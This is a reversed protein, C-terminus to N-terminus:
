IIEIVVQRRGIAYAEAKTPRWLDVTHTGMVSMSGRDEVTYILDGTLEPIKFQTGFPVGNWAATGMHVHAGSATIFPNGMTEEPSSTYSSITVVRQGPALGSSSAPKKITSTTTNTTASAYVRTQKQITYDRTPKPEPTEPIMASQVFPTSAGEQEVEDLLSGAFVLKENKNVNESAYVREQPFVVFVLALLTLFWMAKIPLPDDLLLRM